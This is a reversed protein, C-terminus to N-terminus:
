INPKSPLLLLSHIDLILYCVLKWFIQSHTFFDVPCRLLNSLVVIIFMLNSNRASMVLFFFFIIVIIGFIFLNFM